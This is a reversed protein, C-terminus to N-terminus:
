FDQFGFSSLHSTPARAHANVFETLQKNIRPLFVYHLAYLHAENSPDLIGCDEMCGFLTYFTHTCGYFVDRWLREIRQNHVSRGTLHSGRDPGRLPHSLMYRAIDVNEGGKDTRVRSPLGFREVARVFVGFVTAATNNPNAKLFVIMRSYGDIGGHIVIRWRILKHNGDVHWLALPGYVQYKRRNVTNIALARLLVGEPNVRRMAERIRVQQVKIGRSTLAGTMRRYGFSPFDRLIEQIIRDLSEDDIHSYNETASLGFDHLRREITRVSTSLMRSIEPITFGREVLFQLQDQPINLKPRGRGGTSVRAVSYSHSVNQVNQRLIDNTNGVLTIVQEDVDQGQGGFYRAMSNYLWDLRYSIGDLNDIGGSSNEIQRILRLLTGRIFEVVQQEAM